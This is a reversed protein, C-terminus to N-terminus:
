NYLGSSTSQTVIQGTTSIVRLSDVTVLKLTPDFTAHFRLIRTATMPGTDKQDQDGEHMLQDKDCFFRASELEIPGGGRRYFVLLSNGPDVTSPTVVALDADRARDTIAALITSADRQALAQASADTWTQQANLYFALIGLTVFASLALVVMVEVLTFGGFENRRGHRLSM